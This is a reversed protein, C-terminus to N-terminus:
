DNRAAELGVLLERTRVDEPMDAQAAQLDRRAEHLRGLKILWAGRERRMVPAIGLNAEMRYALAVAGSYNGDGLENKIAAVYLEHARILKAAAEVPRNASAHYYGWLKYIHAAQMPNRYFDPVSEMHTFLTDTNRWVPLLRVTTAGLVLGLAAAGVLAFKALAPHEPRRHVFAGVSGVLTGILLMDLIYSYRDVLWVPYETLGLCPLSLGVFGVGIWVLGPSTKRRWFAFAAVLVAVLALGPMLGGAWVSEEFSPHNPTLHAPWTLKLPFIALTALAALLREHWTAVDLSPAANFIGPTALRNWLTVGVACTAPALFLAHTGWWRRVQADKLRFLGPPVNKLIAADFVMLWLGYTVSVPYTGNAMVAGAWALALWAPRRKAATQSKLYALMSALLFVAALPYTSATIWAVPEVRLPHIAWIAAGTWAMLETTRSNVSSFCLRYVKSFVLFLLVAAVAHLVLGVTHWVGPNLGDIDYLARMLVWHVPKFRMATEGGFFSAVLQWSWPETMMPNQTVTIDDDWRVFEFGLVPFFCGVVLVILLGIGCWRLRASSNMRM